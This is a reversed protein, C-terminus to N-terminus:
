RVTFSTWSSAGAAHGADNPTQARVRWSGRPLRLSGAYASGASSDRCTAAVTAHDTWVASVLRQVRLVVAGIGAASRPALTGRVTFAHSAYLATPVTPATVSPKPAVTTVMSTATVYPATALFRARYGARRTPVCTLAFAGTLGTTATTLRTWNTGDTSTEVVIKAGTFPRALANALTGSLTVSRKWSPSATSPVLSLLPLRDALTFSTPGVTASFRVTDLAPLDDENEVLLAEGGALTRSFFARLDQSGVSWYVSGSAVGLVEAQVTTEVTAVIPLGPASYKLLRPNTRLFKVSDVWGYNNTSTYTHGRYPNGDPPYAIGPHIGFHVHACGNVHGIIQGAKVKAGKGTGAAPRIHGYVAKFYRGDGTKHLMVIVGGYKHDGGSELVTGDGVAYVAHGVTAPMDQAMHWRPPNQPRYEWWGDWGRFDETGVPWYWGGSGPTAARAIIPAAVMASALLAGVLVARAFSKFAYGYIQLAM